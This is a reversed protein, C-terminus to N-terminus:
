RRGEKTPHILSLGQTLVSAIRPALSDQDQSLSALVSRARDHKGLSSWHRGLQLKAWHELFGGPHASVIREYVEIARDYQKLRSLIDGYAALQETTTLGGLSDAQALRAVAEQYQEAAALALGLQPLVTKRASHDAHHELWQTGIRVAATIEGQTRITELLLGMVEPTYIGTPFQLRYREFVKRAAQLDRQDTYSKGLGLLAGQQQSESSTHTVITSFLRVAEDSFGLRRHAAAIELLISTDEYVRHAQPGHQHFLLVTTFDDQRKVAVRLSSELLARLRQAARKPWPNNDSDDAQTTVAYYTQQAQNALHETELLQATHFLAESAITSGAHQQALTQLREKYAKASVSYEPLGRMHSHILLSLPSGKDNETLTWERLLGIRIQAAVSSPSRPFMQLTALYFLEAQEPFGASRYSDAIFLLAEPARPHQPHINFFIGYIDRARTLNQQVAETEAYRLLAESDLRFSRPWRSHSAAYLNNADRLRGRRYAAHGAASTAHLLLFPDSSRKRVTDFVHAADTWKKLGLSAYGLGLLARDADYSSSGTFALAQQYASQAEQYWGHERYLDGIRWAARRANASPSKQRALQKYMEIADLWRAGDEASRLVMEALFAQAAPHWESADHEALYRRFLSTAEDYAHHEFAQVAKHFLSINPDESGREYRPGTDPLHAQLISSPEQASPSLSSPRTLAEDHTLVPRAAKASPCCLVVPIVLLAICSTLKPSM